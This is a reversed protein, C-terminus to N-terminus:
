CTVILHFPLDALAGSSNSTYVYVSNRDGAGSGMEAAIAGSASQTPSRSITAVAFCASVDRNFDVRYVGENTHNSVPSTTGQGRAIEGAPLVAASLTAVAPGPPGQPGTSGTQGRLSNRAGLSIDRLAVGRDKIDKSRVGSTHIESAGVAGTRIQKPGVSNRPLQSVAYSTGGLAIFVAVTAMVNAYSLHSRLRSMYRLIREGGESNRM